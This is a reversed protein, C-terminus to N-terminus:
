KKELNILGRKKGNVQIVYNVINDELFKKDIKPWDVEVNLNLDEMCESVFHPIIPFFITLIKKYNELLDKSNINKELHKIFFNYIEYMNAIIVNYSFTELNYTFKNIMQNTYKKLELDEALNTKNELKLKIKQHLQWLKQVFKYSSVMGKDSWQVDKQPPSDSLIFLRVADAGYNTIINEPDIVNKKSKSM